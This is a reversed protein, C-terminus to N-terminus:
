TAAPYDGVGLLPQSWTLVSFDAEWSPHQRALWTGDCAREASTRWEVGGLDEDPFSPLREM